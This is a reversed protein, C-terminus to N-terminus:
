AERGLAVTKLAREAGHNTLVLRGDDFFSTLVAHRTNADADRGVDHQDDVSSM